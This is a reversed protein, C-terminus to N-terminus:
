VDWKLTSHWGDPGETDLKVSMEQSSLTLWSSTGFLERSLDLLRDLTEVTDKLIESEAFAYVLSLGMARPDEERAKRIRNEVHEELTRLAQRASPLFQPLPQRGRFAQECAFLSICMCSIFERRERFVSAVTQKRPINERVKRLGTMLDLTKQLTAVVQRYHRMPKPLLSLEDNMTKVLISLRHLSTRIQIELKLTKHKDHPTFSNAHQFMDRSLTLYLHSLLGITRSSNSLFLVRCQRPFVFSNVIVAAIIGAGIMLGRLYALHIVSVSPNPNLYQSFVIPPLTISAVVGLPPFQTNIVLWSIPIEAATVMVVIGYPNTHCILWTIYAYIAGIITGSLRLYGVRWTAGMNTELVWVYTIIMWQCHVSVFWRRGESGASLFAPLSLLAVGGANKVAHRLHSSHQISRVIKSCQVRFQLVRRLNWLRYLLTPASSLSLRLPLRRRVTESRKALSAKEKRAEDVDALGRQTEQRSLATGLDPADEDLFTNSEELVFTRPAAGLWSWSLRPYWLRPSSEEYHVAIAHAVHLAHRVEHAMQLLSVMFLCLDFIEPPFAVEGDIARQQLDLDDSIRRLAERADNGARVLQDKAAEMDQREVQISRRIVAKQFCADVIREVAKLSALIAGGLEVAPPHFESVLSEAAGALPALRISSVGWSLERRLHEVISILPKMSKVSIRGVRLEFAAQCYVSNLSISKQLLKNHLLQHNHTMAKPPDTFASELSASLCDHLNSFVSTVEQAFHTSTWPLLLMSAFLSTVAASLTIWLFEGAALLAYHKQSRGNDDTLIWISIFCCIRMSLQLRPLRSKIWGAFFSIAVLFVALVARTSAAEPVMLTAIYRALTSIGIAILAGTINLVTAELQQALDEQVSFVLEKVTLVLFAFSGGLHSFPRIAILIACIFTSLCRALARRSLCVRRLQELPTKVASWMIYGM